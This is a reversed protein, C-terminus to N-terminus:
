HDTALVAFHGIVLDWYGFLRIKWNTMPTTGGASGGHRVEDNTM